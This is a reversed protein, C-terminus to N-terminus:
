RTASSSRREDTIACIEEGALEAYIHIEPGTPEVVSVKAALGDGGSCSRSTRAQRWRHGQAGAEAKTGTPLPLHIDGSRVAFGDAAEVARGEALEDGALRHLRRRLYQGAPRLARAAHRDARDRGDHMVVIRDAM